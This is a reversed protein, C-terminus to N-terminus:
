LHLTIVCIKANLYMSIYVDISKMSIQQIFLYNRVASPVDPNTFFALGREPEPFVATCQIYQEAGFRIDASPDGMTRLLQSGPHKNLM